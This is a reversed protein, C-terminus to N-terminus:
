DTRQDGSNASRDAAKPQRGQLLLDGIKQVAFGTPFAQKVRKVIVDEVLWDRFAHAGEKLSCALSTRATPSSHSTPSLPLAGGGVEDWIRIKHTPERMLGLSVVVGIVAIPM